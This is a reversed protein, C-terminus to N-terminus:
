TALREAECLQKLLELARPWAEAMYQHYEPLMDMEIRVLAGGGMAEFVYNEFQPAAIRATLSEPDEVGERVVGLHRISVFENRQNEAIEAVLGCGPAGLFWIKEGQEWSGEFYSNEDFASTWKRYGIPDLMFAFVKEVPADVRVSFQLRSMSSM